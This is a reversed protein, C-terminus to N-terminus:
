ERPLGRLINGRVPAACFTRKVLALDFASQRNWPMLSLTRAMLCYGFLVQAWTGVTPLWYLWRMAPPLAIFLLLLYAARVQVPFARLSRERAVAHALNVVSIGIAAHFGAPWGAVGISLCIVTVLWYWWSPARPELMFM